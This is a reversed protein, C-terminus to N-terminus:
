NDLENESGISFGLLAATLLNRKQDPMRLIQATLFMSQGDRRTADPFALAAIIGIDLELTIALKYMTDSSPKTEGSLTRSITSHTVGIFDAFREQTMSRAAMEFRILDSLSKVEDM